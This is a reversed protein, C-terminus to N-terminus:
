VCLFGVYVDFGTSAAIERPLERTNEPDVIGLFPKLNRHAIGTKCHMKEIDFIVVGTNESGTGATTPICILPKLGVPVLKFWCCMKLRFQVLLGKGM